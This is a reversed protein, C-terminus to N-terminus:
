ISRQSIWIKQPLRLIAPSPRLVSRCLGDPVITENNQYQEAPTMPATVDELAPETAAFAPLVMQATMVAALLLSTPGSRRGQKTKKM